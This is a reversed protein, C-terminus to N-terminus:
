AESSSITKAYKRILGAAKKYPSATNVKVWKSLPWEKGSALRCWSWVGLQDLRGRQHEKEVFQLIDLVTARFTELQEVVNRFRYKQYFLRALGTYGWKEFGEGPMQPAQGEIGSRYWDVLRNGWGIQYALLDRVSVLGGTGELAKTSMSSERLLGISEILKHYENQIEQGLPATFQTKIFYDNKNM